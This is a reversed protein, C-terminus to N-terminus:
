EDPFNLMRDPSIVEWLEKVKADYARAADEPTKFYGITIQKGEHKIRARWRTKGSVSVGKYGSQNARDRGRNRLNETYTVVRINERRNDLGNGNIHDVVMGKPANTLLRHLSITSRRRRRYGASTMYWDASPHTIRTEAYYTNAKRSSLSWNHSLVLAEDEEDYLVTHKGHVKSEIILEKTAM